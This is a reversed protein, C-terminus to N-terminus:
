ASRFCVLVRGRHADPTDALPTQASTRIDTTNGNSGIRRLRQNVEFPMKRTSLEIARQLKMRFKLM